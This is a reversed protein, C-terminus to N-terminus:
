ADLGGTRTLSIIRRALDRPPCPYGERIWTCVLTFAGGIHYLLDYQDAMSAGQPYQRNLFHIIMNREFRLADDSRLFLMFRNDQQCTHVLFDTFVDEDTIRQQHPRLQLYAEMDRFLGSYLDDLLHEVTNYHAYFTSRNLRCARCLETVTISRIPKTRMLGLMTERLAQRSKQRANEYIM